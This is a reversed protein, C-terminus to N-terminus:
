HLDFTRVLDRNPSGGHCGTCGDGKKGVSFTADGNPSYEAWLWGSGANGNGPDKKIIALLNTSGGSQIEKVILSGTPFVGGVPLEGTSDLASLAIGNFKLRFSGHPSPAAPALVTGSQYFAYNTSSVEDFLIKDGNVDEDNDKKCSQSAGLIFLLIVSIIFNTKMIFDNKNNTSYM